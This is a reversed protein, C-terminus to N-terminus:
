LLIWEERGSAPLQCEKTQEQMVEIEAEKLVPDERGKFDFRGGETQKHNSEPSVHIICFLRGM